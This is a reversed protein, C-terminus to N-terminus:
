LLAEAGARGSILAGHVTATHDPECAEGALVLRGGWDAGGLALRDEPTAGPPLYSYSGRAFPDAHWRTARVARPAPVDPGYAARLAALARAARAATDLGEDAVAGQGARFGTLVAQGTAPWASFWAADGAGALSLWEAGADWFPRDFQLILKNLVGMRLRGLARLRAPALAPAFRVSGARLVGLPLTLLAARGELRRGDALHASVGDGDLVLAAVPAGTLIDLGQALHLVLRDYGGGILADAGEFGAGSDFHWASLADADAAYDAEIETTLYLDVAARLDDGAAAWHPSRRIAARLGLDRGYGLAAIRARTILEHAEPMLAALDARTRGSLDRVEAGSGTPLLRAGAARALGVLPNGSLGHVWSAGLEFIRDPGERVTAIRGGIRERAEIVRVPEGADALVRAASLGAMGAGIVLVPLAGQGRLVGPLALGASVAGIFARRRM